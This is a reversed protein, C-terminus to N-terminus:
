LGGYFQQFSLTALNLTGIHMLTPCRSVGGGKKLFQQIQGQLTKMNYVINLMKYNGFIFYYLLHIISITYYKRLKKDKIEHM